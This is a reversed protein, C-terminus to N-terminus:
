EVWHTVASVPLREPARPAAAPYGVFILGVGKRGQPVGLLRFTEPHRALPGTGWFTGLGLAHGALMLNQVACGVALLDEERRFEDPDERQCVLVVYPVATMEGYARDYSRKAQASDPDPHKKRKMEARLHALREKVHSSFVYFEWPNTLKHNPAWTAAQLMRELDARPVPDARFEHITRRGIIAEFLEM